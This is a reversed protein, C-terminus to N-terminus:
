NNNSQVGEKLASITKSQILLRQAALHGTRESFSRINAVLERALQKYADLTIPKQHDISYAKHYAEDALMVELNNWKQTPVKEEDSECQAFVEDHYYAFAESIMRDYGHRDEMNVDMTHRIEHGITDKNPASFILNVAVDMDARAGFISSPFAIGEVGIGVLKKTFQKFQEHSRFVFTPRTIKRGAVRSASASTAEIFLVDNFDALTLGLEPPFFNILWAHLDAKTDLEKLYDLANNYSNEVTEDVWPQPRVLALQNPASNATAPKPKAEPLSAAAQVNSPSVPQELLKRIVCEVANLRRNHTTGYLASKRQEIKAQDAIDDLGYLDQPRIQEKLQEWRTLSSTAILDSLAKDDRREEGAALHKYRKINELLLSAVRTNNGPLSNVFRSLLGVLRPINEPHISQYFPLVFDSDLMEAIRARLQAMHSSANWAPEKVAEVVCPSHSTKTEGFEVYTAQEEKTARQKLPREVHDLLLEKPRKSMSHSALPALLAHLAEVSAAVGDRTRKIRDITHTHNEGRLLERMSQTIKKNYM